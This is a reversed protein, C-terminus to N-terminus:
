ICGLRVKNKDVAVRGCREGARKGRKIMLDLDAMNLGSKTGPVFVGGERLLHVAREDAINGIQMKGWCLGIRVIQAALGNHAVNEDGAIRCDVGHLVGHLRIKNERRRQEVLQVEM